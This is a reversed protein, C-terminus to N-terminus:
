HRDFWDLTRRHLDLEQRPETAGHGQGPYRVLAAEIGRQRLATFMEESQTIHVDNDSEGHAFLTPTSVKAVHRLPSLEWLTEFMGPDWPYGGFEAHILDQYLSTAYFSILNSLGAYSAAARFRGTQSIIWNTMYGGYSGGMVFMRAEDIQPYRALADDVAGILDRYDGRGWANLTGDAFAQGYGTSGRPNPLLMAYGRAVAAQALISFTYGWMGHPGGHVNLILPWKRGDPPPGVPTYLLSEVRTGDFSQFRLKEPQAIQFQELLERNLQTVPQPAGGALKWLERPRLADTQLYYWADRHRAAESVNAEAHLLPVRDRYVTVRGEDMVRYVVSDGDWQPSMSRRDLEPHLKRAEGGRLPIVWVHTDEAISDITTIKRTTATYAVRKGDGSIVPGMEVGETKTIQRVEKNDPNVAYIDYNLVADPDPGRNSLFV